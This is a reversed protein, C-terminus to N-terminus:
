FVFVMVHTDVMRGLTCRHHRLLLTRLLSVMYFSHDLYELCMIAEEVTQLPLPFVKRRVVGQVRPIKLEDTDAWSDEEEFDETADAAIPDPIPPAAAKQHKGEKREKFKRVTRAIKELTWGCSAVDADILGLVLSASPIPKRPM